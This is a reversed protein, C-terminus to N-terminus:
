ELIMTQAENRDAYVYEVRAEVERDTLVKPENIAIGKVPTNTDKLYKAFKAEGNEALSQQLATAMPGTFFDLYARVNGERADDFMAYVADQPTADRGEVPEPLAIGGRQRAFLLVGIAAILAVTLIQAKRNRSRNM